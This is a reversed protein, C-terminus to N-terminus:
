NRQFTEFLESRIEKKFDDIQVFGRLPKQTRQLEDDSIIPVM